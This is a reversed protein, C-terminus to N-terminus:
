VCQKFLYLKIFIRHLLFLVSISVVLIHVSAAGSSRCVSSNVIAKSYCKTHCFYQKCYACSLREIERESKNVQESTEETKSEKGRVRLEDPCQNLERVREQMQTYLETDEISDFQFYNEFGVRKERKWSKRKM